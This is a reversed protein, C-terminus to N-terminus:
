ACKSKRKRLSTENRGKVVSLDDTLHTAHTFALSKGGKAERMLGRCSTLLLLLLIPAQCVNARRCFASKPRRAIRWEGRTVDALPAFGTTFIGNGGLLNIPKHNGAVAAPRGARWCPQRARFDGQRAMWLSSVFFLQEGRAHSHSVPLL